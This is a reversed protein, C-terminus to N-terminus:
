TEGWSVFALIYKNEWLPYATFKYNEKISLKTHFYLSKPLFIMFGYKQEIEGGRHSTLIYCCSKETELFM